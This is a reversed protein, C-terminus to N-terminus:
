RPERKLGVQRGSDFTPSLYQVLVNMLKTAMLLVGQIPSSLSLNHVGNFLFALAVIMLTANM